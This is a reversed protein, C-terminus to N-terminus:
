GKKAFFIADRETVKLELVSSIKEIEKLRFDSATIKRSMSPASIGLEQALKALTLHKRITASILLDRDIM